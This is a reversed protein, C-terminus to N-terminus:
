LHLGSGEIERYLNAMELAAIAAEWGRNGKKTGAREIAQELTEATIVGFIIPINERLALTTIGRAVQGSVFEYHPTDGRIVVGLCIIADFKKLGVLRSVVGPIEFSGPVWFVEINDEEVEHRLLADRAGELLKRTIFENFRPVVIGIKLGKGTIKGKYERM